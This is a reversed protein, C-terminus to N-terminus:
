HTNQLIKVKNNTIINIDNNIYYINNINIKKHLNRVQNDLISESKDIQLNSLSGLSKMGKIPKAGVIIVDTLPKM